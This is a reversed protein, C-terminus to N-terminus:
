TNFCPLLYPLCSKSIPFDFANKSSNLEILQCFNKLGVKCRKTEPETYTNKMCLKCPTYSLNLADSIEFPDFRYIHLDNFDLTFCKLCYFLLLQFLVSLSFKDWSFM